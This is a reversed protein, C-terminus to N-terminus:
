SASLAHRLLGLHANLASSHSPEICLEKKRWHRSVIPENPQTMHGTFFRGRYSRYITNPPVNSRARSWKPCNWIVTSQTLLYILLYTLTNTHRSFRVDCHAPPVCIHVVQGSDNISCFTFIRNKTLRDILKCKVFVTLRYIAHIRM